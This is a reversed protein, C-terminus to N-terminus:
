TEPQCCSPCLREQTHTHTRTHTHAHTHTYPSHEWRIQKYALFETNLQRKWYPLLMHGLPSGLHWCCNLIQRGICSVCSWDRPQSSGQLLAHCGVGTNKGPSDGHVSSSPPSCDMPDCLILCSQTVLCQLAGIFLKSKGVDQIKFLSLYLRFSM